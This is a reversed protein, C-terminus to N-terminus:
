VLCANVLEDFQDSYGAPLIVDRAYGETQDLIPLDHELAPKANALQTTWIRDIFVGQEVNGGVALRQSRQHQGLEDLRVAEAPAGGYDGYPWLETKSVRLDRLLHLHSM